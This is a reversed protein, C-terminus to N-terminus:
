TTWIMMSDGGAMDTDSDSPPLAVRQNYPRALARMEEDAELNTM